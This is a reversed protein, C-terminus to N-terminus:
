GFTVHKWITRRLIAYVTFVSVGKEDAIAQRRRGEKGQRLIDRVDAETLRATGNREGPSSV